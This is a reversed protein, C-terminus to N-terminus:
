MYCEILSYTSSFKILMCRCLITRQFENGVSCKKCGPFHLQKTFYIHLNKKRIHMYILAQFLALYSRFYRQFLSSCGRWFQNIIFRVVVESVLVCKDLFAYQKNYNITREKYPLNCIANPFICGRIITIAVYTPASLRLTKIHFHTRNLLADCLKRM